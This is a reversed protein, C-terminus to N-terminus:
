DRKKLMLIKSENKWNISLHVLRVVQSITARNLFVNEWLFYMPM